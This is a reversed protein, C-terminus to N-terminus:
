EAKLVPDLLVLNIGFSSLLEKLQEICSHQLKEDTQIAAMAQAKADERNQTFAQNREELQIKKLLSEHESDMEQFVTEVSVVKFDPTSVHLERTGPYFRWDEVANQNIGYKALYIGKVKAEAKGMEISNETLPVDVSWTFVSRTDVMFTQQVVALQCIKEKDLIFVNTASSYPDVKNFDKNWYSFVVAGAIMFILCALCGMILFLCSSKLKDPKGKVKDAIVENKGEQEPEM